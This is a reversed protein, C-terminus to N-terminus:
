KKRRQYAFEVIKKLTKRYSIGAQRSSRMLGADETLDPNPNVELVYLQGDNKSLRMDIRAYDRCGMAKFCAIAMKEAEKRIKNSLRAPCIPITKHYAEHFPDWKAQYSVINYLHAPMKSFDIESIPLAKPENDGFVAVNLERGQIFEELLVPQKYECFVYEIRKILDFHNLVISENEIGVSADEWAPKVIVPYHLGHKYSTKIEDIFKFKPTRIGFASVIRKTLTKNQCTALALPSAGTYAIGMLEFLGTFATELRPQDRFIEVLNFIVDPKNKKYDEIFTNLDDMVNLIYADMGGKRLAAAISEYENIPDYETIAFYPKFGLEKPIHTEYADKIEPYAENFVIAVKM